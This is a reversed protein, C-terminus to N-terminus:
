PSSPSLQSRDTGKKINFAVHDNTLIPTGVLIDKHGDLWAQEVGAIDCEDNLPEDKM